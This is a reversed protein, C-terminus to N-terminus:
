FGSGMLPECPGTHVQVEVQGIDDGVSKEETVKAGFQSGQLELFIGPM